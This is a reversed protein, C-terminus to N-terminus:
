AISFHSHALMSWPLFSLIQSLLHQWPLQLLRIQKRSDIVSGCRPFCCGLLLVGSGLSRLCGGVFELLSKRSWVWCSCRLVSGMSLSRIALLWSFINQDVLLLLYGSTILLGRKVWGAWLWRLCLGLLKSSRLRWVFSIHLLPLNIRSNLIESKLHLGVSIM